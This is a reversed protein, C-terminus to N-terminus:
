LRFTAPEFGAGAVLDLHLAGETGVAPPKQKDLDGCLALISVLEGRLYIALQEAIFVMDTDIPGMSQDAGPIRAGGIGMIPRSQGIQDALLVGGRANPGIGGVSRLLVLCEEGPAHEGAVDVM